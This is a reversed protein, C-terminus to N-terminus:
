HNDLKHQCGNNRPYHPEFSDTACVSHPSDRTVSIIVTSQATKALPVFNDSATVTISYQRRQQPDTLLNGKLYVIGSIPDVDFYTVDQGSSSYTIRDLVDRDTATVQGISTYVGTTEDINLLYNGANSFVPGFQNRDVNVVVTALVQREPYRSDYAAVSINYQFVNRQSMNFSKASIITGDDLLTFYGSGGSTIGNLQYMISGQQDDVQDQDRAAVRAVSLGINMNENITALILNGVGNTITPLFDDYNVNITIIGQGTKEPIRMDRATVVTTFTRTMNNRLRNGDSLWIGGDYNDMYFIEPVGAGSIEYQLLDGDNDFNNGNNVQHVVKAADHYDFITVTASQVTPAFINRIVNVVFNVFVKKDPFNSDYAQIRLVYQTTPYTRVSKRLVVKARGNENTVNFFDPADLNGVISYVMFGSFSDVDTARIETNQPAVETGVGITELITTTYDAANFTPPNDFTIDITVTAIASKKLPSPISDEAVVQFEYRNNVNADDLVRLLSIEGTLTNLYFTRDDNADWNNGKRYTVTDVDDDTANINLIISGLRRTEDIVRRYANGDPDIFRPTSPNRDVNITVTATAVDNPYFSDYAIIEFNYRQAYLGDQSLDKILTVTGNNAAIRFFSNASEFNGTKGYMIVGRLDGDNASTQVVFSGSLANRTPNAFYPLSQFRPSQLNRRITITVTAQDCKRFAARNDCVQVQVSNSTQTGLTLLKRLTIDGTQQNIFYYELSAADLISWSLVDRPDTDTANVRIIVEGLGHTDWITTSLGALNLITPKGPNRNPVLKLIDEDYNDPYESDWVRFVLSYEAQQDNLIDAGQRVRVYATENVVDFMFFSPAAGEGVLGFEMKGKKDNDNATVNYIIGDAFTRNEAISFTAPISIFFPPRSDREVTIRIEATDFKPPDRQDSARIQLVYTNILDGELNGVVYLVGTNSVLFFKGVHDGSIISYVVSDGDLDTALVTTANVPQIDKESIKAAYVDQTFVPPNQNRLINITVTASATQTIQLETRTAIAVIIFAPRERIPDTTLNKTLVVDGNAEIRFFLNGDAGPQLSYGSAGPFARTNVITTGVPTSEPITRSYDQQGFALTGNVRNVLITVQISSSRQPEGKDRVFATLELVDTPNVIIANRVSKTLSLAGTIRDLYFYSADGSGPTRDNISFEFENNPPLLDADTANLVVITTGTAMSEEITRDINQNNNAFQPNRFNKNVFLELVVIDSLRPTGGDQVQLMINFRIKTETTLNAGPRLTVQGNSNVAFLRMADDDGVISYSLTNFPAINDNDTATTPYILAGGVLDMNVSTAYKGSILNAFFPATNRTVTVTVIAPDPVVNSPVGNDKANIYVQVNFQTANNPFGMMSRQLSLRGKDGTPSALTSVAFYSQVDPTNRAADLSYTLDRNPSTDDLDIATVMQIELGLEQTELISKSYFRSGTEFRPGNQNRLINLQLLGVSSLSPNGLDYIQVRM